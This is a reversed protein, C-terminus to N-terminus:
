HWDTKEGSKWGSHKKVKTKVARMKRKSGQIREIDQTLLSSLECVSKSDHHIQNVKEM